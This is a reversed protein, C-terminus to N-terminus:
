WRSMRKAANEPDVKSDYKEMYDDINDWEMSLLDIMKRTGETTM